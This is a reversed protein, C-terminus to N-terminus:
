LKPVTVKFSGNEVSLVEESSEETIKGSFTGTLEYGDNTESVTTITMVCSNFNPEQNEGNNYIEYNAIICNLDEPATFRMRLGESYGTITAPVPPYTANVVELSFGHVAHYYHSNDDAANGSILLDVDEPSPNPWGYPDRFSSAKDGYYTLTQNNVQFTLHDLKEKDPIEFPLSFNLKEIIITSGGANGITINTGEGAVTYSSGGKTISSISITNAEAVYATTGIFSSSIMDLKIECSTSYVGTTLQEADGKAISLSIAGAEGTAEVYFERRLASYLAKTVSLSETKGDITLQIFSAPAADDDKGCSMLLVASFISFGALLSSLKQM